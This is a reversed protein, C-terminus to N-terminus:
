DFCKIYDTVVLSDRLNQCLKKGEGSLWADINGNKIAKTGKELLNVKNLFLFLNYIIYICLHFWKYLYIWM